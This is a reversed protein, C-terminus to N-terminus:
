KPRQLKGIAQDIRAMTAASVQQSCVIYRKLGPPRDPFAIRVVGARRLEADSAILFDYDEEDIFMFDARDVAVMRAVQLPSVLSRDINGPFARILADIDPGYSVGDVVALKLEADALLAKMSRHSRVREASRPGALVVHPRDQHIPQSFKAYAEREPIKYWGFSCIPQANNRIELFIRRPPMDVFTARVGAEDLIRRTRELLFGRQVGNEVYSYPPKDRFAMTLEDGGARGPALAPLLVCLGLAGLGARHPARCTLPTPQPM